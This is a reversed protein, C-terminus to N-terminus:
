RLYVMNAHVGGADLGVCKVRLVFPLSAAVRGWHRYSRTFPVTIQRRRVSSLPPISLRMGDVRQLPGSHVYGRELRYWLPNHAPGQAANIEEYIRLIEDRRLIGLCEARYSPESYCYIAEVAIRALGVAHSAGAQDELFRHYPALLLASATLGGVKLFEGRSLAAGDLSKSARAM